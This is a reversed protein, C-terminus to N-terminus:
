DVITESLGLLAIAPVMGVFVMTTALISADRSVATMVVGSCIAHVIEALVFEMGLAIWVLIQYLGLATHCTVAIRVRGNLIVRAIELRVFGMDVVIAQAPILFPAIQATGVGTVPAHGTSVLDTTRVIWLAFCIPLYGDSTVITAM